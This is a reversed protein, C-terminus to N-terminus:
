SPDLTLDPLPEPCTLTGTVTMWAIRETDYGGPESLTVFAFSISRRDPSLHVQGHSDQMGPNTPDDDAWARASLAGPEKWTVELQTGPGDPWPTRTLQVTVEVEDAPDAGLPHTRAAYVWSNTTQLSGDPGHAACSVQEGPIEYALDWGGDGRVWGGASVDTPPLEPVSPLAPWDVKGNFTVQAPPRQEPEPASPQATTPDPAPTPGQPNPPQSASSGRAAESPSDAPIACGALAAGVCAAVAVAHAPRSSIVTDRYTSRLAPPVAHAPRACTPDRADRQRSSASRCRAYGCTLPPPRRTSSRPTLDM